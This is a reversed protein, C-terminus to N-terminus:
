VFVFAHVLHVDAAFVLLRRLLQQVLLVVEVGRGKPEQLPVLVVMGLCILHLTSNIAVPLGDPEVWAVDIGHVVQPARIVHLLSELEAHLPEVTDDLNVGVHVIGVM